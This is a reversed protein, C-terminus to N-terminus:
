AQATLADSPIRLACNKRKSSFRPCLTRPQWYLITASFAARLPAPLVTRARLRFRSCFGSVGNEAPFFMRSLPAALGPMIFGGPDQFGFTHDQHGPAILDRIM